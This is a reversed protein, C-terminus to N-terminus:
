AEALIESWLFAFGIRYAHLTDALPMGQEARARGTERSPSPDPDAADTRGLRDLVLTANSTTSHVLSDFPTPSDDKYADVQARIRLAMQAGLEPVRARLAAVVDSMDMQEAYRAPKTGRFLGDASESDRRGYSGAGTRCCWPTWMFLPNRRHCAHLCAM